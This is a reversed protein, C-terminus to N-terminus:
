DDSSYTYLQLSTQSDQTHNMEWRDKRSEARLVEGYLGSVTTCVKLGLVWSAFALSDRHTQPRDPRYLLNWDLLPWMAIGWRLVFLLSWLAHFHEAPLPVRSRLLKRWLSNFHEVFHDGFCFCLDPCPWHFSLMCCLVTWVKALLFFFCKSDVAAADRVWCM